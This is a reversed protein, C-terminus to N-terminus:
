EKLIGAITSSAGLRKTAAMKTTVIKQRYAGILDEVLKNYYGRRQLSYLDKPTEVKELQAVDMGFHKSRIQMAGIPDHSRLAAHFDDVLQNHNSVMEKTVSKQVEPSTDFEAGVTFDVIRNKVNNLESTQESSYGAFGKPDSQIIELLNKVQPKIENFEKEPLGMVSQVHKYVSANKYYLNIGGDPTMIKVDNVRALQNPNPKVSKTAEIAKAENEKPLSPAFGNTPEVDVPAQNSVGGDLGAQQVPAQPQGTEPPATNVEAGPIGQSHFGGGPNIPPAVAQKNRQQAKRRDRESTIDSIAEDIAKTKYTGDQWHAENLFTLRKKESDAPVNRAVVRNGLIYDFQKNGPDANPDVIPQKDEGIKLYGHEDVAFKGAPVPRIKDALDEPPVRTAVSAEHIAPDNLYATRSKQWDVARKQAAADFKKGISARKFNVEASDKEDRSMQQWVQPRTVYQQFLEPEQAFVVGYEGSNLLQKQIEPASSEFRKVFEDKKEAIVRQQRLKTANTKLQERANDLQLFETDTSINAKVQNLENAIQQQKLQEEQMQNSVPLQNIENQKLVANQSQEINQFGLQVGQQVGRIISTATGPLANGANIGATANNAFLNTDIKPGDVPINYQYAM